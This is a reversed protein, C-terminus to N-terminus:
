RSISARDATLAAVRAIEAIDELSVRCCGGIGAAGAEFWEQAARGLDVGDAGPRWARAAGDWQEGSNPYALFPLASVGRAVVLAPLVESIDCCNVGVAIIEPVSAARAFASELSEGTRLVGAHPTVSLWAPVGLGDLEACLAEVEALSPITEIALLDAGADVFQRLRPRHWARLEDVSLGYAGTYESGNALAAGYPGVSAAVWGVRGDEGPAVLGADARAAVALEVGRRILAGAEAPDAGAAALSTESVQYSATMAVRAGALFFDRHATRVADPDERLMRASWLASTVDHGRAELLTGLGGDLVVPGAALVGAFSQMRGAYDAM